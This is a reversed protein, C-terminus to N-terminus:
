SISYRRSDDQTSNHQISCTLSYANDFVSLDLYSVTKLDSSIIKGSYHLTGDTTYRYSKYTLDDRNTSASEKATNNNTWVCVLPDIRQSGFRFSSRLAQESNAITKCNVKKKQSAERYTEDRQRTLSLTYVILVCICHFTPQPLWKGTKFIREWVWEYHPRALEVMEELSMNVREKDLDLNVGARENNVGALWSIIQM